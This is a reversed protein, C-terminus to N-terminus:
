ASSSIVAKAGREVARCLQAPPPGRPARRGGRGEEQTRAAAMPRPDLPAARRAQSSALRARAGVSGDADADARRPGDRRRRTPTACCRRSSLCLIGLSRTRTRPVLLRPASLRPGDRPARCTLRRPDPHFQRRPAALEVARTTPANAARPPPHGSHVPLAPPVRATAAEDAPYANYARYALRVAQLILGAAPRAPRHHAHLHRPAAAPRTCARADGAGLPLGLLLLRVRAAARLGGGQPRKSARMNRLRVTGILQLATGLDELIALILVLRVLTDFIGTLKYQSAALYLPAARAGVDVLVTASSNDLGDDAHRLHEGQGSRELELQLAAGCCSLAARAGLAPRGPTACGSTPRAGSWSKPVQTVSARLEM